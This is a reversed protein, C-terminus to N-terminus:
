GEVLALVAARGAAPDPAALAAEAMDRCTELTVTALRAGVAKVAASAMSLSTVGMGVLACALLPDAAAEGCVGVSKGAQKGAEATIAILHLVAPQWPDTLHALDTAMRDAAMAYQTLDNTGISLFDVVELFRHALLAASPIEVMVGAKLGRARVQEAFDAAEAVTAVMPAMVWTQTGTRKAAEAIGDLQHELLAPNAWSLRLGRVGLAPNEEGPLTAFAVPKDSGADLTRVVVYQEGDFPELVQAYIEAQEEASPEDQRNLFCLETRFLGVGEIPQAAAKRASEGDAVNALLKVPAGDKTRGPGSWSALAARQERDAAVRRDAEQPDPDTEITGTTGDVLLRTGNAIELAGATGVVCPIGLQRAIIATHSTPGGKETVLAHVVEADLGATDAPALDEAVLVCPSKPLSVGPEPEGVLFAVIRREIDRLDTAREAMLGGMSTFVTVFQEVAAHVAEVIPAGGNLSKRVAGRLGKDRALGASATLVEAAAGSARDAKEAFGTSVGEAAEDYAALAADADAFGGDGFKEIAAPDVEGRVRLAPAHAVGPVVPTGQLHTM